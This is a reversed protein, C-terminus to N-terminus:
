VVAATYINTAINTWRNNQISVTNTFFIMDTALIDALGIKPVGRNVISVIGSLTCRSGPLIEMVFSAMM